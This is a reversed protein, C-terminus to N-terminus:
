FGHLFQLSLLLNLFPSLGIIKFCFQCVCFFIVSSFLSSVKLHRYHSHNVNYHFTFSPCSSFPISSSIILCKLLFFFLLYLPHSKTVEGMDKEKRNCASYHWMSEKVSEFNTQCNKTFDELNEDINPNYCFKKECLIVYERYSMNLTRSVNRRISFLHVLPIGNQLYLDYFFDRYLMSFLQFAKM